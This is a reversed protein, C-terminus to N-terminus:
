AQWLGHTKHWEELSQEPYGDFAEDGERIDPTVWDAKSGLMIHVRSPPVPLPTDIVGAAPHLLAPWRADYLWLATGCSGCFHREAASHRVHGGHRGTVAHAMQKRHHPDHLKLTDAMGSLNIAYGGTGATKRCISCYCLQYPVPAQSQVSFSIAGCQCTGELLMPM